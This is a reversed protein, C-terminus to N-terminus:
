PRLMRSSYNSFGRSSGPRSFYSGVTGIRDFAQNRKAYRHGYALGVTSGVVGVGIGIKGLTSLGKKKRGTGGTRRRKRPKRKKVVRKKVPKKRRKKVPKKPM